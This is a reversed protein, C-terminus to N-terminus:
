IKDHTRHFHQKLNRYLTFQKGCVECTYDKFGAHLNYHGYTNSRIYSQGRWPCFLCRVLDNEHLSIHNQLTYCDNFKKGCDGYSCMFEISGGVSARKHSAIHKKM